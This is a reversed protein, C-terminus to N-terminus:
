RAAFVSPHLISSPNLYLRNLNVGRTDTRYFGKSVGDPNLMPMLKFVFTKRLIKAVSDTRNLLSSFVGNMVFSSPTEGPHVRASLFIIQSFFNDRNVFM